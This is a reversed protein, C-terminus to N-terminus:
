GRKDWKNKIKQEVIRRNVQARYPSPTRYCTGKRGFSRSHDKM